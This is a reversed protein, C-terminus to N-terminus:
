DNEKIEEYDSKKKCDLCYFGINALKLNQGKCYKCKRVKKVYVLPEYMRFIPM